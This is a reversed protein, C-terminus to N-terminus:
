AAGPASLEAHLSILTSLTCLTRKAIDPVKATYLQRETESFSKFLEKIFYRAGINYSASLDCNYIKVMVLAASATPILDQM